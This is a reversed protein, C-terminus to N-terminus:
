VSAATLGQLDDLVEEELFSDVGGHRLERATGELEGEGFTSDDFAGCGKPGPPM